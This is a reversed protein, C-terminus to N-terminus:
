LSAFTIFINSSASIILRRPTAKRPDRASFASRRIDTSLFRIFSLSLRLHLAEMRNSQHEPYLNELSNCTKRYGSQHCLIPAKWKSSMQLDRYLPRWQRKISHMLSPQILNFRNSNNHNSGISKLCHLNFLLKSFGSGDVPQWHCSALEAFKDGQVLLRAEEHIKVNSDILEVTVMTVLLWQSHM